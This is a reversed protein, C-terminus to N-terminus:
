KLFLYKKVRYQFLFECKLHIIVQYAISEKSYIFCVSIKMNRTYEESLTLM